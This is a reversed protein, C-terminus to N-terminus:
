YRGGDKANESILLCEVDVGLQLIGTETYLTRENVSIVFLKRICDAPPPPTIVAYVKHIDNDDHSLKISNGARIRGATIIREKMTTEEKKM